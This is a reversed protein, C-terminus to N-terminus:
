SSGGFFADVDAQRAQFMEIRQKLGNKFEFLIAEDWTLSRGRLDAANRTELIVKEGCVLWKMATIRYSGGTLQMLRSFYGMVADPGRYIRSLPNDGPVVYEVDTAFVARAAIADGEAMLRQYALIKGVLPHELAGEIITENM